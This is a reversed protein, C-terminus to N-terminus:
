FALRKTHLSTKWCIRCQHWLSHSPRGSQRKKEASAVPNGLKVVPLDDSAVPKDPNVVPEDAQVLACCGDIGGHGDHGGHGDNGGNGVSLDDEAEEVVDCIALVNIIKYKDDIAAQLHMCIFYVM